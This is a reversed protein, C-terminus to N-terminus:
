MTLRTPGDDAEDLGFRAKRHTQGRTQTGGRTRQRAVAELPSVQDPPALSGTAERLRRAAGLLWAARHFKAQAAELKAFAELVFQLHL